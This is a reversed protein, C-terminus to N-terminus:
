ACRVWDRCTIDLAELALDCHRHFDEDGDGEKDEDDLAQEQGLADPVARGLINHILHLAAVPVMSPEHTYWKNTSPLSVGMPEIFARALM